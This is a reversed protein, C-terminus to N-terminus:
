SYGYPSVVCRPPPKARLCSTSGPWNEDQKLFHGDCTFVYDCRPRSSNQSIWYFACAERSAAHISVYVCAGSATLTYLSVCQVCLWM